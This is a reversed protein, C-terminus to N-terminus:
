AVPYNVVTIDIHNSIECEKAKSPELETKINETKM